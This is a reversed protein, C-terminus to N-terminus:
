RSDLEAVLGKPAVYRFADEVIATIEDWDLEHEGATDLFVSLWGSFTGAASV